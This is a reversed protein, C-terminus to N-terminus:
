DAACFAAAGAAWQGAAGGRGDDHERRDGGRGAAAAVAPPAGGDPEAERGARGRLPLLARDPFAGADGAQCPVRGVDASLAGSLGGGWRGGTGQWKGGREGEERM